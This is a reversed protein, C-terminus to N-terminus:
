VLLFWQFCLTASIQTGSYALMHSCCDDWRDNVFTWAMQVLKQVKNKDGLSVFLLLDTITVYYDTKFLVLKIDLGWWCLTTSVKWNNPMAYSFNTRTSWKCTLNLLRFCYGRWCWWRRRNTLYHNSMAFGECFYWVFWVRALHGGEFKFIGWFQLIDTCSMQFPSAFM